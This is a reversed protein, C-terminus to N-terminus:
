CRRAGPDTEIRKLTEDRRRLTEGAVTEVWAAVERQSSPVVVSELATAMELATAFRDNPDRSLGRLVVEDLVGPVEAALASPPRPPRDLAELLMAPHKAVHPEIFRRATLSEDRIQGMTKIDDIPQNPDFAPTSTTPRINAARPSTAM